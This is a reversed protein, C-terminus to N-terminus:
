SKTLIVISAPDVTDGAGYPAVNPAIDTEVEVKGYLWKSQSVSWIRYLISGSLPDYVINIPYFSYAGRPWNDNVDPSCFGDADAFTFSPWIAKLDIGGNMLPSAPGIRWKMEDPSSWNGQTIGSENIVYNGDILRTSGSDDGYNMNNLIKDQIFVGDDDLNDTYSADPLVIANNAIGIYKPYTRYYGLLQIPTRPTRLTNQYIYIESKDYQYNYNIIQPPVTLVNWEPVPYDDQKMYIPDLYINAPNGFQDKTFSITNNFIRVRGQTIQIVMGGEFHNNYIDGILYNVSFAANQGFTNLWAAGLVINDHVEAGGGHQNGLQMGDFGNNIFQNRYVKTDKFIHAYYDTMIGESNLATGIKQATFYGIYIGEGLTDKFKNHHIHLNKFVFGGTPDNRWTSPDDPDPDTKASIGDFKSNYGHVGSITIDSSFKNIDLCKNGPASEYFEPDTFIEFGYELNADNPSGVFDVYTCWETRIGLYKRMGVYFPNGASTDPIILIHNDATGPLNYIRLEPAYGSLMIVEGPLIPNNNKRGNMIGQGDIVCRSYVTSNTPDTWTDDRSCTILHITKGFLSPYVTIFRKKLVQSSGWTEINRVTLQIDFVGVEGGMDAQWDISIDEGYFSRVTSGDDSRIVSFVFVDGTQKFRTIEGTNGPDTSTRFLLTQDAFMVEKDSNFRIFPRNPATLVKLVFERYLEVTFPTTNTGIMKVSYDGVADYQITSIDRNTETTFTQYIMGNPHEIEWDVQDCGLSMDQFSVIDGPFIMYQTLNFNPSPRMQIIRIAAPYTIIVDSFDPKSSSLVLNYQASRESLATKLSTSKVAEKFNTWFPMGDGTSAQISESITIVTQDNVEDYVIEATPELSYQGDNQTSGSITFGFPTGLDNMLNGSLVITNPTTSVIAQPTIISEIKIQNLYRNYDPQLIIEISDYAPIEVYGNTSLDYLEGDMLNQFSFILSHQSEAFAVANTEFAGIDNPSSDKSYFRNDFRTAYNADATGILPSGTVPLYTSLDIKPVLTDTIEGGSHIELNNPLGVWDGAGPESYGSGSLIYNWVMVFDAWDYYNYDIVVDDMTGTDDLRIKLGSCQTSADVHRTLYQYNNVYTFIACEYTEIFATDNVAEIFTNHIIKLNRVGEFMLGAQAQTADQINGTFLCDQITIDENKYPARSGTFWLAAKQANKFTCSSIHMGVVDTVKCHNLFTETAEESICNTMKVNVGGSIYLPTGVPYKTLSAPVTGYEFRCGDLIINRFSVAHFPYQACNTFLCDYFELGDGAYVYVGNTGNGFVCNRFTCNYAKTPGIKLGGMGSGNSDFNINEFILNSSQELSFAVGNRGDDRVLAREGAAIMAVSARITLSFGTNNSSALWVSMVNDPTNIVISEDKTLTLNDNIAQYLYTYTKYDSLRYVGTPEETSGSGGSPVSDPDAEFDYAGIDTADVERYWFRIDREQAQSDLATNRAPSGSEILFDPDDPITGLNFLPDGSVSNQDKNEGTRYDALNTYQEAYVNSNIIGTGGASYYLNNDSTIDDSTKGSLLKWYVQPGSTQTNETGAFINNYAVVSLANYSGVCKGYTAHRNIITNNIMTIVQDAGFYVPEKTGGGCDFVLCNIMTMNPGGSSCYVGQNVIDHIITRNLLIQGSVDKSYFGKRDCDFIVSDEVLVDGTINYAYVGYVSSAGAYKVTSNKLASDGGSHFTLVENAGTGTLTCGDVTITGHQYTRICKYGGEITCDIVRASASNNLYIGGNTFGKITFGVIDIDQIGSGSIEIPSDTSDNVEAGDPSTITLKFGDTTKYKYDFGTIPSGEGSVEITYDKDLPNPVANIADQVSAYTVDTTINKIM